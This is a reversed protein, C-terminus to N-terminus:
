FFGGDILVANSCIVCCCCGTHPSDSDGPRDAYLQPPLTVRPVECETVATQIGAPVEVGVALGVCGGTQRGSAVELTM